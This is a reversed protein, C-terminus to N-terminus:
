RKEVKEIFDVIEYVTELGGTKENSIHLIKNTEIKPLIFKDFNSFDLNDAEYRRFIEIINPENERQLQRILRTKDSVHNYFVYLDIRDDELLSRVGDPNFVGINPKNKDLDCYRTGYYWNNFLTWELLENKNDVFYKESVFHYNKGDIEDERPPRTTCSIIEKANINRLTKKLLYDKGSGAKGIIAYIKIKKM